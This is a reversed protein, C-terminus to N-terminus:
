LEVTGLYLRFACHPKGQVDVMGKGDIGSASEMYVPSTEEVQKINQGTRGM